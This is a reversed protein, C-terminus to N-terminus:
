KSIWDIIVRITGSTAADLGAGIFAAKFAINGNAGLGVATELTSAALGRNLSSRNATTSNGTGTVFSINCNLVSQCQGAMNILAGFADAGMSTTDFQALTFENTTGLFTDIVAQSALADFTALNPSGVPVLSVTKAATIEYLLVLQRPVTKGLKENWYFLGTTM